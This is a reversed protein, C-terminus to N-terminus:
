LYLLIQLLPTCTACTELGATDGIEFDAFQRFQQFKRLNPFRRYLLIPLRRWPEAAFHSLRVCEPPQYVCFPTTKRGAIPIIEPV